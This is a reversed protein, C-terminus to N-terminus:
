DPLSFQMSQSKQLVDLLAYTERLTAGPEPVTLDYTLRIGYRYLAVYWKRMMSYYDIRM